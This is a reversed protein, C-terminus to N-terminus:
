RQVPMRLECALRAPDDPRADPSIVELFHGDGLRLGSAPLWHVLLRGWHAGLASRPGDFPSCAYLGGLLRRRAVRASGERWGPPLVVCLDYRCRNSPSIGPDDVGIGILPQGGLGAAEVWVMFRRWAPEIVADYAGTVRVYAIDIPAFERVLLTPLRDRPESNLLADDERLARWASASMGFHKRFAHAFSEATAFGVGLAIDGVTASRDYRLRSAGNELRRRRVYANPSEGTWGQFVRQFHCPSYAAIEALTALSLNGGLGSEIFDLVRNM